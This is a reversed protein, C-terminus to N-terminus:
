QRKTSRSALMAQETEVATFPRAGFGNLVISVSEFNALKGDTQVEIVSGMNVISHANVERLATKQAYAVGTSKMPIYYQLILQGDPKWDDGVNRLM